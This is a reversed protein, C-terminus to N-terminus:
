SVRSCGGRYVEDIISVADLILITRDDGIDAAGAVGQVGGLLEGLPKLVLDHQGRIGDAMIGIRRSAVGVVLAYGAAERPLKATGGFFRDLRIVPLTMERVPLVENGELTLIEGRNVTVTEQIASIPVGYTEDGADIILTRIIALTIPLTIVVRSGRGVLTEVLVTGSLAKINSKVVDMGVGRGSLESVVESTSFGPEFILDMAEQDTLDDDIRVLGQAVAKQRIKALDIGRGDDSVEIVVRNGKQGATITIIGTETKGAALREAKTEIGHDVANRVLHMLPDSIDEIIQKDLKTEAGHLVLELERGEDAAIKRVIRTLKEYLTRVPVLRIAMVGEQLEKLEKGFRGAIKVLGAAAAPAVTRVQEVAEMLSTQTAVLEGVIAMLEDLAGIDVRVMGSISRASATRDPQPATGVLVPDPGVDANATAATVNVEEWTVGSPLFEHPEDTGVLIDFDIADARDHGPSPLTSIIEGRSKLLDILAELERDFSELLFSAHVLSLRRGKRITENLRHEEFETLAGTIREPLFPRRTERSLTVSARACCTAIRDVLISIDPSEEERGCARVLVGLSDLAANIVDVTQTDLPAKGLRILDLLTELRHALGSIGTYGLMGALGKLTHAGRFIANVLDPPVDGSRAAVSLLVLDRGLEELLEEAEALFERLGGSHDRAPFLMPDM